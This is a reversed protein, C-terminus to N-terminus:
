SNKKYRKWNYMSKDGQALLEDISCPHEPDYFAIGSSISLKYNRNSKSNHIEISRQLREFIREVDDGTTGVPIVVFEDGGIRAIVDSERYNMKLINATEILAIDGEQHGWTDNIRKLDDVDAYLMFTGKKQRKAIKLQHEVLTFFGRRNYLGTLEDRLSLTRIEEQRKVHEIRAILEELTFPKKIFDTAGAEIAMDYSFDDIFGTMIIVAINPRIRKVKETLEFGNMDPMAVDTLLIDFSTKSILELASAANTVTKCLYGKSSLGNKFIDLLSVNDDVIIVSSKENM